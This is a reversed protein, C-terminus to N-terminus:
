KAKMDRPLRVKLMLESRQLEEAVKDKLSHEETAGATIQVICTM